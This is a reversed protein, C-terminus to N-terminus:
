TKIFWSISTATVQGALQYAESAGTALDAVWVAGTDPIIGIQRPNTGGYSGIETFAGRGDILKYMKNLNSDSVWVDGTLRNIAVGDMSASGGISGVPVFPRFGGASKHLVDTPDIAWIDGTSTNVAVDSTTGVSGNGGVTFFTGQSRALKQIGFVGQAAVFIDKNFENIAISRPVPSGGVDAGFDHFTTFSATGGASRYILDTNADIVFVDGTLSDVTIGNPITAGALLDYDGVETFAATGGASKFVKLVDTDVIWVDGNVNNVALNAILGSAYPVPVGWDGVNSTTLPKLDPIDPVNFTTSGDGKGYATGMKAFLDAYTTRSVESGDMKLFGRSTITPDSSPIADGVALNGQSVSNSVLVFESTGSDYRLRVITSAALLGVISSDRIPVPGGLTVIQITAAGTNSNAVLFEVELGDVYAPPVVNSGIPTLVYATSSGSDTYFTGNSSFHAVAKVVQELDGASLTIGSAEILNQLESALQNWEDATVSDSTM